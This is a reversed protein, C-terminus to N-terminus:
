EQNTLEQIAKAAKADTPQLALVKKYSQVAMSKDGKVRYADGLSRYVAPSDPYYSGNLNLLEIAKDAQKQNYLLFLAAQHIVKGPPLLNVGWQDFLQRYHQSVGNSGQALLTQYPFEYNEFVYLLGDHLSRFPVSFHTEEGYYAYRYFFRKSRNNSLSTKFADFAKGRGGSSQGPEFPNNAQTLYLRTHFSTDKEFLANAKESLFNNNWTLTPDMAIYARFTSQELFCNLTFLGALSHGALLRYPLTRYNRDMHPLLERELFSLFRNSKESLDSTMDRTRDTNRVAVVIMEPIKENAGDSLFRIMGAAYQFHTDADLLILVPYRKQLYFEDQEYSAPVSIFFSRNEGLVKSYLTDEKGITLFAAAQGRVNQTIVFFFFGSFFRYFNLKHFM